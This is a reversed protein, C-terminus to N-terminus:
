PVFIVRTEGWLLKRKRKNNRTEKNARVNPYLEGDETLFCDKIIDMWARKYDQIEDILIVDFPKIREQHQVFIAKNSYYNRDLFDSLKNGSLNEPVSFVIGMNNLEANIFSHYNM